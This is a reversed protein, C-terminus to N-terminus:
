VEVFGLHRFVATKRVFGDPDTVEVSERRSFAYLAKLRAAQLERELAGMFFPAGGLMASTAGTELALATVAKARSVIVSSSPLEDFTLLAQLEAQRPHNIVGAAAQEPSYVHQTLNIIM